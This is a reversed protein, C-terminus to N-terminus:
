TQAIINYTFTVKGLHLHSNVAVILLITRFVSIGEM